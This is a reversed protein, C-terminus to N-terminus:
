DVSVTTVNNFWHLIIKDTEYKQISTSEMETISDKLTQEIYHSKQSM